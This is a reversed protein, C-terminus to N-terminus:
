AVLPARLPWDGDLIVQAARGSARHVLIPAMLNAARGDDAITTVVLVRV